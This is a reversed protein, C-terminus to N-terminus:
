FRPKYTNIIPKVGISEFYDLVADYQKGDCSLFKTKRASMGNTSQLEEWLVNEPLEHWGDFVLVDRYFWNYHLNRKKEPKFILKVANEHQAYRGYQISDFTVRSTVIGGFDSIYFMTIKQGQKLGACMFQESISIVETWIRYLAVKLREMSIARIVGVNFKFDRHSYIWEKMSARYFEFDDNDWTDVLKNDTIIETSIDSIIEASELNNRYEEESIGSKGHYEEVRKSEADVIYTYRAYNYGEPNIVLKLKGDCYIAVCNTCYWEVSDREDNNMMQYDTMSQIRLDDTATGGMGSLFSYDDLLQNAFMNYIEESFYVERTVKCNERVHEDYGEIEEVSNMKNIRSTDANLIFYEVEAVTHNEEIKKHRTEAEARRCETEKREIEMQAMQAELEQKRRELEEKEFVAKEKQFKDVINKMEVTMEMQEYKWSVIDSEYVGYFNVDFYDSMSDSNNYNYSQAFEYVYHVIAKVEEGDKEFPSALLSVNVSHIDSTVSWKCMKFRARIHKRIISAIEKCDHIRYEAYNDGIDDTRTMGWLDYTPMQEVKNKVIDSLEGGSSKNDEITKAFELRDNNQKAYWMKQKGSWRFGNEKLASIISGVPKSDFRIEIGNLEGNLIVSAM